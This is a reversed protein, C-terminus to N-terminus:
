GGATLGFRTGWQRVVSRILQKGEPTQSDSSALYNLAESKAVDRVKADRVMDAVSFMPVGSQRTGFYDGPGRIALDREAIQFGDSTEAM